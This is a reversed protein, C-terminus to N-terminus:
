VPSSVNLDTVDEYTSYLENSTSLLNRGKLFTYGWIMTVMVVFTLVGIKIERSM